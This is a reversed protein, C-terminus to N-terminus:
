KGLGAHGLLNIRLLNSLGHISGKREAKVSAWKEGLTGSAIQNVHFLM